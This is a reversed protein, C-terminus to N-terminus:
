FAYTPLINMYNPKPLVQIRLTDEIVCSRAHNKLQVPYITMQPPQGVRPM